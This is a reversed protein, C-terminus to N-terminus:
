KTRWPPNELYETYRKANELTDGLNGLLLNCSRCILGRVKNTIPDHDVALRRPKGNYHDNSTESSKCIACVGNQRALQQDYEEVTIGYKTKFVSRRLADKYAQHEEPTRSARRKRQDEKWRERLEERNRDRYNKARTKAADPNAAAWEKSQALLKERNKVYYARQRDRKRQGLEEASLRTRYSRIPKPEDM